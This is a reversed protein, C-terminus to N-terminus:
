KHRAKCDNEVTTIREKMQRVEDKLGRFENGARWTLWLASGVLGLPLLTDGNIVTGQTAEAQANVILMAMLWAAVPYVGFAGWLALGRLKYKVQESM